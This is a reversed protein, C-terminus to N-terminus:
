RAEKLKQIEDRLYRIEGAVEKNIEEQLLMWATLDTKTNEEQKPLPRRTRFQFYPHYPIFEKVARGLFYKGCLLWDYSGKQNFEDGECIVEDPGLDRWIPAPEECDCHSFKHTTNACTPNAPEEPSPFPTALLTKVFDLGRPTLKYHPVPQQPELIGSAVLSKLEEQVAPAQDNEIWDARSYCHLVLTTRLPTNITEM